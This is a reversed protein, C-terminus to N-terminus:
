EQQYEEERHDKSRERKKLTMLHTSLIQFFCGHAWIAAVQHLLATSRNDVPGMWYPQLWWPKTEKVWKKLAAKLRERHRGTWGKSTTIGKRWKSLIQDIESWVALDLQLLNVYVPDDREEEPVEEDEASREWTSCFSWRFLICSIAKGGTMFCPALTLTLQNVYVRACVSPPTFPNFDVSSEHVSSERGWVCVRVLVNSHRLLLWGAATSGGVM